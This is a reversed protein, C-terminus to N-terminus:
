NTIKIVDEKNPDPAEVKLIEKIELNYKWLISENDSEIRKVRITVPVSTYADVKFPEVKENLKQLNDDVIVGYIETPTQLVAAKKNADYVYDGKITIYGDNPDYSKARNEELNVETKTENKCSVFTVICFLIIFSRRFM